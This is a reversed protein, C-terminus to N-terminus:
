IPNTIVVIENFTNDPHFKKSSGNDGLMYTDNTPPDNDKKVYM